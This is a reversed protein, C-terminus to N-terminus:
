PLGWITKMYWNYFHEVAPFRRGCIAIPAYAIEAARVVSPPVTSGYAALACKAIPGPSLVYLIMAVAFSLLYTTFSFGDSRNSKAPTPETAAIPQTPEM